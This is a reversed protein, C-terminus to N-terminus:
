TADAALPLYRATREAVENLVCGIARCRYSAALERQCITREVEIKRLIVDGHVPLVIPANPGIQGDIKTHAPLPILLRDIEQVIYAHLVDLIPEPLGTQWRGNRFDRVDGLVKVVDSGINSKGPCRADEFPNSTFVFRYKAAAVSDRVIGREVVNEAVYGGGSRHDVGARDKIDSHRGIRTSRRYLRGIFALNRRPRIWASAALSSDARVK